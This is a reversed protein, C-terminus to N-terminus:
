PIIASFIESFSGKKMTGTEWRVAYYLRRGREDEEFSLELPNKTAFSSHVLEGVKSPPADSLLWVLEMGYVGEPKGWRKMTSRRFRFSLVRPMPTRAEVEPIDDPKPSPSPHSKRNPIGMATRDENTVPPFRLYQNVFPRVAARAAKKADNKAETDVPTHPGITLAYANYWLAYAHCLGKSKAKPTKAYGFSWANHGLPPPM